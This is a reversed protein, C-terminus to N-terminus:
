KHRRRKRLSPLAMAVGVAFIIVPMLWLMYTRPAMPPNLMIYDGYRARLFDYIEADKKGEAVQKRVLARLDKAIDAHSAEISENQCVVCRLQQTIALARAEQVPDSLRENPNTIAFAPLALLWLAAVLLLKKM